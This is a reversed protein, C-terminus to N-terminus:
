LLKDVHIYVIFAYFKLSLNEFTYFYTHIYKKYAYM